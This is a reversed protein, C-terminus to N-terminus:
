APDIYLSMRRWTSRDYMEDASLRKKKIDDQVKDFRRRKCIGRKTRRQVEMKMARRGVYHVERTMVHGYWKLRNEKIQKAIEGM